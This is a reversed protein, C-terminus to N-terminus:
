TRPGSLGSEAPNVVLCNYSIELLEFNPSQNIFELIDKLQREFIMALRERPASAGHKGTRALMSEQSALIEAMARRMFVIQYHYGTPLDYLLKYIMKVARGTNEVVWSNDNKVRKVAEFEFYGRPNDEDAVRVGDTLVEMGGASIMQM